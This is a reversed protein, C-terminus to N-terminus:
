AIQLYNLGDGFPVSALAAEIVDAFHSEGRDNLHISDPGCMTAPVFGTNLDVEVVGAGACAADIAGTWVAYEAADSTYVHGDKNVVVLPPTLSPTFGCDVSLYATGNYGAPKATATLRVTHTGASLGGVEIVRHGVSSLAYCASDQNRTQTVVGDVSVTYTMGRYVIGDVPVELICCSSGTFTYEIWAGIATAFRYSGGYYDACAPISATGWGGALANWGTSDSVTGAQLFRIMTRVQDQLTQGQIPTGTLGNQENGGAHFFVVGPRVPNGPTWLGPAAVGGKKGNLAVTLMDRVLSGSIAFNQVTGLNLRRTLRDTFRTGLRNYPDSAVWSHGYWTAPQLELAPSSASM